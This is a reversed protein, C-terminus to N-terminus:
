SVKEIEFTLEDGGRLGLERKCKLMEENAVKDRGDIEGSCKISSKVKIAGASVSVESEVEVSGEVTDMAEGKATSLVEFDEANQVQRESTVKDATKCKVGGTAKPMDVSLVTTGPQAAASLGAFVGVLNARNRLM